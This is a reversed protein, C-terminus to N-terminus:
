GADHHGVQLDVQRAEGEGLAVDAVVPAYGSTVVTYAGPVVNQLTYTGDESTVASGVVEGSASLLTVRADPVPVGTHEHRVTGRVHGLGALTVDSVVPEAGSTVQVAGPHHGEASVVLTYSSPEATTLTYSGDEGTKARARQRGSRDVLTLVAHAIPRGASDHVRGRLEGAAPVAAAAAVPTSSRGATVAEAGRGRILSALAAAVSMAIALSFVVVLGDHFPQSILHPFFERGTLHTAATPSLHGLITPGLLHQIPNYGLFAAFLVGVPPLQAVTHAPGAPVGQATLGSSLTHPLSGALGAVMLSFFVGMSLVMGANQFTARMGSAAGRADAPVNSM